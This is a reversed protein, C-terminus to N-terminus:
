CGTIICNIFQIIDNLDWTGFAPAIDGCPLRNNFCNIFAAVDSLDLIGFPEALDCPCGRALAPDGPEEELSVVSVRDRIGCILAGDGSTYGIADVHERIANGPARQVIDATATSMFGAVFTLAIARITCSLSM